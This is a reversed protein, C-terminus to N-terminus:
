SGLGELAEYAKTIPQGTLCSQARTPAPALGALAILVLLITSPKM